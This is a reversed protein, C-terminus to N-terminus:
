VNSLKENLYCPYKGAMKHYLIHLKNHNILTEQEETLCNKIAAKQDTSGYILFIGHEYKIKDACIFTELKYLDKKYDEEISDGETSKVEMVVLNKSRGPKHVVFDPNPYRPRDDKKDQSYKKYYNGFAKGIVEHGKKDIEGHLTFPFCKPLHCRLQHYLEYCYVRERWASIHEYREVKFYRRDIDMISSCLADQFQNWYMSDDM